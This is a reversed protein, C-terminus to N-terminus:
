LELHVCHAQTKTKNLFLGPSMRDRVWNWHTHTHQCQSTGFVQFAQSKIPVETMQLCPTPRIGGMMRITYRKQYHVESLCQGCQHKSLVVLTYFLNRFAMAIENQLLAFLIHHAQDGIWQWSLCCDCELDEAPAIVESIPSNAPDEKSWEIKFRSKPQVYFLKNPWLQQKFWCHYELHWGGHLWSMGHGHGGHSLVHLYKPSRTTTESGLCCMGPVLAVRFQPTM